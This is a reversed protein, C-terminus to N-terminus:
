VKYLTKYCSWLSHKGQSFKEAMFNLAFDPNIAEEYSVDPHAPLYIQSLGFSKERTGDPRIYKSQVDVQYESECNVVAHM